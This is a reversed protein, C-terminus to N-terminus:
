VGDDMIRKTEAEMRRVTDKLMDSLTRHNSPASLVARVPRPGSMSQLVDLKTRVPKGGSTSHVCHQCPSSSEIQQHTIIRGSDNSKRLALVQATFGFGHLLHGATWAMPARSQYSFGIAQDSPVAQACISMLKACLEPESYWHPLTQHQGTDTVKTAATVGREIHDMM